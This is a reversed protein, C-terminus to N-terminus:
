SSGRSTGNPEIPADVAVPDHAHDNSDAEREMSIQEVLIHHTFSSTFLSSIYVSRIVELM